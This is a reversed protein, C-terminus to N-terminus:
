SPDNFVMEDVLGGRLWPGLRKILSGQCDYKIDTLAGRDIGQGKVVSYLVRTEM